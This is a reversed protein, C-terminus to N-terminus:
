GEPGSWIIIGGIAAPVPENHLRRLPLDGRPLGDEEGGDAQGDGDGEGAGEEVVGGELDLLVEESVPQDFM